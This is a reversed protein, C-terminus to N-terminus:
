ATHGVGAKFLFGTKFQESEGVSDALAGHPCTLCEVCFLRAESKIALFVFKCAFPWHYAAIFVLFDTSVTRM